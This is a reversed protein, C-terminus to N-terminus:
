IVQIATGIYQRVDDSASAVDAVIEPRGELIPV